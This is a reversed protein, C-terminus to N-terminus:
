FHYFFGFRFTWGGMDTKNDGFRDIQSYSSEVLVGTGKFKEDTNYLRVGIEGHYGGVWEEIEPHGIKDDTEEQCYWYDPGVGVYGVVHPLIKMNFKLSASVPVLLIKTKISTTEKSETLLRGKEKMFGSEFDISFHESFFREYFGYVPFTDEGYYDKFDSELPIYYGVSVGVINNARMEPTDASSISIASLVFLSSLFIIQFYKLIVKRSLLMMLVGIMIIFFQIQLNPGEASTSIFCGGDFDEPQNLLRITEEIIVSIEDTAASENGYFDYSSSNFYWTSGVALDNLVYSFSNGLDVRNDLNGAVNGYYIINGTFDAMQSNGDRITVTISHADSLVGSLGNPSNPSLNDELTDVILADAKDSENDSIDLATISFYYRVSSTLGSVTFSSADSDNAEVVNDYFGSITSYYINYHDIDTESNQNWKLVVSNEGIENNGTISLGTPTVPMGTDELTTISEIDSQDSEVSNDNSSVAVYYITASELETITYETVSDDVTIRTDLNGSSTGLYVFYNDADTDGTWDVTITTETASLTVNTPVDAASASQSIMLLGLLCFILRIKM